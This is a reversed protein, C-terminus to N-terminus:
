SIARCLREILSGPHFPKQCIRGALAEGHNPRRSFRLRSCNCGRQMASRSQAQLQAASVLQVFVFFLGVIAVHLQCGRKFFRVTPPCGKNLLNGVNMRLALSQFFSTFFQPIREAHHEFRIAFQSFLFILRGSPFFHQHRSNRQNLSADETARSGVKGNLRFTNRRTSGLWDSSTMREGADPLSRNCPVRSKGSKPSEELKTNMPTKGHLYLGSRRAPPAWQGGSRSQPHVPIGDPIQCARPIRNGQSHGHPRSQRPRPHLPKSFSFKTICKVVRKALIGRDPRCQGSNQPCVTRLIYLM